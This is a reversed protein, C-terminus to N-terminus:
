GSTLQAVDSGDANMVFIQTGGGVQGVFAIKSGDPSWAPMTGTTRTLQTFGSGDTGIVAIVSPCMTLSYECGPEYFPASGSPPPGTDSAYAIKSGHPSWAPFSAMGEGSTLQTRKLGSPDMLYIATQEHAGSYDSFAVQSGDPSWAYQEGIASRNLRGPLPSGSQDHWLPTVNGTSPDVQYVFSPGDGGGVRVWIEGNSPLPTTVGAPGPPTHRAGGLSVVVFSIGAAAVVLAVIASGVKRNRHHRRRREQTRDLGGAL